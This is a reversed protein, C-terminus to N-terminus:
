PYREIHFDEFTVSADFLVEFLFANWYSAYWGCCNGDAEQPPRWAGRPASGRSCPMSLYCLGMNCPMSPYWRCHMSPYWGGTFLIVSVLLFMVKAVENRVTFIMSNQLKPLFGRFSSLTLSFIEALNYTM